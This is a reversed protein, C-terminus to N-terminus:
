RAEAPRLRNRAPCSMGPGARFHHNKMSVCHPFHARVARVACRADPATMCLRRSGDGDRSTYFCRVEASQKLVGGPQHMDPPVKTRGKGFRREETHLYGSVGATARKPPAHHMQFPTRFLWQQLARYGCGQRPRLWSEGGILPPASM